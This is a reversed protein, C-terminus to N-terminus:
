QTNIYAQSSNDGTATPDVDRTNMVNDNLGAFELSVHARYLRTQPMTIAFGLLGCALAFLAITGKRRLVIQVFSPSTNPGGQDIPSSDLVLSAAPNLRKSEYLNM